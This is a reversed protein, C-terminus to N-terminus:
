KEKQKQRSEALRRKRLEKILAQENHLRRNEARLSDLEQNIEGIRRIEETPDDPLGVGPQWFGFRIMEELVFAEKGGQQRIQEYLEQRTRPQTIESM